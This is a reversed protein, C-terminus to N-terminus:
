VTSRPRSRATTTSGFGGPFGGAAPAQVATGTMRNRRCRARSTRAAISSRSRDRLRQRGRVHLHDDQGAGCDAHGDTGGFPGFSGAVSVDIGTGIQDRAADLRQQASANLAFMAAVFMLSTGLIAVVLVLRIPSRLVNRPGRLLTGTFM